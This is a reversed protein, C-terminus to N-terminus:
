TPPAAPPPRSGNTIGTALTELHEEDHDLARRMLAAVDLRGYTEHVGTQAWGAADLADLHEVIRARTARFLEVV